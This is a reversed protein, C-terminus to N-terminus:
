GKESASRLVESEAVVQWPYPTEDLGIVHFRRLLCGWQGDRKVVHDEYYGIIHHGVGSRGRSYEEIMCRGFIEDESFGTVIVGGVTQVLLGPVARRVALYDIIQQRGRIEIDIPPGVSWVGEDTYIAGAFELDRRSVGDAWQSAFRRLVAEAQDLSLEMGEVTLSDSRGSGLSAVKM